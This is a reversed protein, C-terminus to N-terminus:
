KTETGGARERGPDGVLSDQLDKDTLKFSFSFLSFARTALRRQKYSVMSEVTNRVCRPYCALIAMVSVPKGM